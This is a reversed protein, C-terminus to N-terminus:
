QAQAQREEDQFYISLTFEAKLEANEKEQTRLKLDPIRTIRPLRELNVLFTFFGSFDGEMAIELPQEKYLAAQMPKNSKMAPSQLGASVALDTIQRVVSDIEKENPLREEIAFVASRISENAKQLDNNRATEQQLKALLERKQAIDKRAQEIRSNQPRLVWLWTLVPMLVLIVLLIISRIGFRM